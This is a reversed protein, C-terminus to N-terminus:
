FFHGIEVSMIIEFAFFFIFFTPNKDFSTGESSDM